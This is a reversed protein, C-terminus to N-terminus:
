YSTTTHYIKELPTFQQLPALEALLMRLEMQFQPVEHPALPKTLFKCGSWRARWNNSLTREATLMVLPVTDLDPYRRIQKVLDFGTVEPMNIDLFILTPNTRSLMRLADIPNSFTSVAYGWSSVLSEFQRLLVPSDDVVVIEPIASQTSSKFTILGQNLLKAFVKAIELTDQASAVAIDNLTKGSYVLDELRQKQEATFHSLHLVERNLVPISDMSPIQMKLKNWWAQREMVESLLGEVDFGAIPSQTHLQPLPLFQAQGPRDFLYADCDALIKLRLAREVQSPNILNLRYLEDLLYPFSASQLAQSDAVFWQRLAAISQQADESRLHPVYRQFIKFLGQWSLQQSGSFVLQGQSLALYWSDGDSHRNPPPFECHWYGTLM